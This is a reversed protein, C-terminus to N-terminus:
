SIPGPSPWAVVPHKCKFPREGMHTRKLRLLLNAPAYELVFERHQFRIPLRQSSTIAATRSLDSLCPQAAMGNTALVSAIGSDTGAKSEILIPAEGYIVSDLAANQFLTAISSFRALLYTTSYSFSCHFGPPVFADPLIVGPNWLTFANSIASQENVHCSKTHLM